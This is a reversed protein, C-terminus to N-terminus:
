AVSLTRKGEHKEGKRIHNEAMGFKCQHRCNCLNVCRFMEPCVEMWDSIDYSRMKGIVKEAWLKADMYDGRDFVREDYTSEKILEFRLKEPFMGFQDATYKSYRLKEQQKDIICRFLIYM